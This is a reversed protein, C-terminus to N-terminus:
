LVMTAQGDVRAVTSYGDTGSGVAAIPGLTAATLDTVGTPGQVTARGTGM